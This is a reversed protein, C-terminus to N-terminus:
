IARQQDQSAIEFEFHKKCSMCYVEGKSGPAVRVCLKDCLRTKRDGTATRDYTNDDHLVLRKVEYERILPCRVEVYDDAM